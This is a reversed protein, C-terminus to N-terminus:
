DLPMDFGFADFEAWFRDTKGEQEKIWADCWANNMFLPYTKTVAQIQKESLQHSKQAQRALSMFFSNQNHKSLFRLQSVTITQM